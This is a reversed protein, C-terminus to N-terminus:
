PKSAVVGGVGIRKLTELAKEAAERNPFPGARVRTRPGDPSNLAETYTPVGAKGIKSLLKKVNEPDAFAGVLIVQQGNSRADGASPPEGPPEPKRPPTKDAKQEAAKKDAARKEDARRDADKKETARREADKREAARREADKKEAAKQEAAKQEALAKAVTKEEAARDVSRDAAKEVAAASQGAKAIAGTAVDKPAAGGPAVGDNEEGVVVAAAGTPAASRAALERPDFPLQEQGPIAIQVDHVAQKPEEDMVMPLIVAALGAIAVAGVLRRRAKKKLHLQPDSTDTM